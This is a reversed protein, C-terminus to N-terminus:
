EAPLASRPGAARSYRQEGDATYTREGETRDANRTLRLAAGYLLDLFELGAASM